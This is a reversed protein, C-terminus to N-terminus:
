DDGSHTRGMGAAMQAHLSPNIYSHRQVQANLQSELDTKICKYETPAFRPGKYAIWPYCTTDVIFGAAKYHEAETKWVPDSSHFNATPNVRDEIMQWTKEYEPWDSEVVVCVLPPKGKMGRLHDATERLSELVPIASAPVDSRKFVFYRDERNFDSM